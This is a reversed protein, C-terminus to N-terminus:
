LIEVNVHCLVVQVGGQLGLIQALQHWTVWKGRTLTIYPVKQAHCRPMSISKMAQVHDKLHNSWRRSLAISTTSDLAFFYQSQHQLM